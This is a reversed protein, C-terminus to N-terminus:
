KAEKNLQERLLYGELAWIKDYANQYAIKMGIEADFNKPSAAASEGVVSFGNELTLLCITVTTYAFRYYDKKVIKRNIGETTVRPATLGKEQIEKEILADTTM